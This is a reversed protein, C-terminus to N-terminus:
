SMVLCTAFLKGAIDPTLNQYLSTQQLMTWTLNLDNTKNLLHQEIRHKHIFHLTRTLNNISKTGGRHIFCYILHKLNHKLAEHFPSTGQSKELAGNGVTAQVSFVGWIPRSALPHAKKFM